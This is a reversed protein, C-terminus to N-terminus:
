GFRRNREALLRAPFNTIVGAAGRDWVRHATAPDNVTWVHVPRGLRRAARVFRATPVPLWGQYRDPVAYLRVATPRPELGLWSRWWLDTIERRSAGAVFPADFFGEVADPVFSAVVARGVAGAAMLERRVAEVARAEKLEILFPTRPYRDLVARLSPIGIGTGRYPFERGDLTFKAGADARSLEESTRAEVAGDLDTTRELTPDHCVVPVGDAALRVDFEFAEAGQELALDFSALTNEPALGSAGRHGIVPHRDPDLLLDATM